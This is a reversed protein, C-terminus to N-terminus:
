EEKELVNFVSEDIPPMVPLHRKACSEAYEVWSWSRGLGKTSKLGHKGTRARIEMAVGKAFLEPHVRALWEVEDKKMAPCFWCSSKMPVPLGAEKIKDVCHERVWGWQRLPYIYEYQADNSIKSRRSDAPGADYGILVQVKENRNWCEIAPGYSELWKEQPDRKFVLSCSKYGFALSPLTENVACKGELTQYPARTPVYRVVTVPPFGVVALWEQIVPLYAYTEPKEGGTDAFLIVDPKIGFIHLGILMATSDVGMGYSVKIPRSLDLNPIM